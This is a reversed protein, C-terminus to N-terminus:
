HIPKLSFRCSVMTKVRLYLPKRYIKGDDLEIFILIYLISYFSVMGYVYVKEHKRRMNTSVCQFISILRWIGEPLGVYSQPFDGHKGPRTDAPLQLQDLQGSCRRLRRKETRRTRRSARFGTPWPHLGRAIKMPAGPVKKPCLIQLLNHSLAVTYSPQLKQIDGAQSYSPGPYTMVM